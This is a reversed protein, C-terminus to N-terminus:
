PRAGCVVECPFTLQSVFHRQTEQFGAAEVHPLLEVGRCGGMLSPSLGYLLEWLGQYWRRPRTMNALVLRGGPRLVRWFEGLVMAFDPEPLLDFMFNNVLVDFRCDPYELEYADGLTLRYGTAGMAEAKRQAEALMEQTIDVGETVGDPNLKLIEVFMIGTGVAVELVTEGNRIRAVDL